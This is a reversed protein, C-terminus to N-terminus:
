VYPLLQLPTILFKMHAVADLEFQFDLMYVLEPFVVALLFVLAPGVGTWSPLRHWPAWVVMAAALPVLALGIWFGPAGLDAATSSILVGAAAAALFPALRRARSAPDATRVAPSSSM